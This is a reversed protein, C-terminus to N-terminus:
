YKLIYYTTSLYLTSILFSCFVSFKGVSWLNSCLCALLGSGHKATLDDLLQQNTNTQRVAQILDNWTQHLSQQKWLEFVKSMNEEPDDKSDAAIADLEYSELELQIGIQKWKHVARKSLASYVSAFDKISVPPETTFFTLLILLM